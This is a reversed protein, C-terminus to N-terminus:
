ISQLRLSNRARLFSPKAFQRSVPNILVCDERTLESASKIIALTQSYPDEEIFSLFQRKSKYKLKAVYRRSLRRRWLYSRFGFSFIGKNAEVLQRKAGREKWGVYGEWKGKWYKKSRGLLRQRYFVSFRDLWASRRQEYRKLAQNFKQTATRLPIIGAKTSIKRRRVNNYFFAKRLAHKKYKNAYRNLISNVYENKPFKRSRRMKKTVQSFRMKIDKDNISVIDGKKLELLNNSTNEADTIKILGYNLKQQIESYSGYYRKSLLIYGLRYHLSFFRRILLEDQTKDEYKSTRRLLSGYDLKLCLNNRWRTKFPKTLSVWGGVRIGNIFFDKFKPTIKYKNRYKRLLRRPFSTSYRTLGSFRGVRYFYSKPIIRKLRLWKSRKFKIIRLPNRIVKRTKLYHKYLRKRKVQRHKQM